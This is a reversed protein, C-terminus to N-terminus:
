RRGLAEALENCVRMALARDQLAGFQEFLQEVRRHDQKLLQIANPMGETREHASGVRWVGKM